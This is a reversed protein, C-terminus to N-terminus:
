AKNEKKRKVIVTIVAGFVGGLVLCGFGIAASMGDSMATATMNGASEDYTKPLDSLKFFLYSKIDGTIKDKLSRYASYMKSYNMTEKDSLNVAGKEGFLHVSGSMGAPASINEAIDFEPLVPNGAMSNKSVYIALWQRGEDANLDASSGTQHVNGNYDERNCEVAQYNLQYSEGNETTKNDVFYKPIPKLEVDDKQILTYITYVSVAMPYYRETDEEDVEQLFFDLLDGKAFYGGEYNKLADYIMCMQLLKIEDTVVEAQQEENDAEEKELNDELKDYDISEAVVIGTAEFDLLELRLAAVSEALGGVIDGYEADLYQTQKSVTNLDPRTDELEDLMDDYDKEAFRDVWTNDNTDASVALLSEIIHIYSSNGQMLITLLDPLKETNEATVSKAVGAKDQFTKSNFLDGLGMGSDDDTLKNLLDHVATAKAKGDRYNARYEMITAMFGELLDAVQTKRQRLVETYETTNFSGDMNMVAIDTISERIDDTTKYGMMVYADCNDNLNGKIPLFGKSTLVAEADAEDKGYAIYLESVYKGVTAAATNLPALAVLTLTLILAIIATLYRAPKM